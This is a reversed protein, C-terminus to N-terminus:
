TYKQFDIDMRISTDPYMTVNNEYHKKINFDYKYVGLLMSADVSREIAGKNVTSSIIDAFLDIWIKYTDVKFDKCYAVEYLSSLFESDIPMCETERYKLTTVYASKLTYIINDSAKKVLDIMEKTMCVSFDDSDKSSLTYVWMKHSSGYVNDAKYRYKEIDEIEKNFKSMDYIFEFEEALQKFQTVAYLINSDKKYYKYIKM